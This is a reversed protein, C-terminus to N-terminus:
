TWRAVPERGAADPSRSVPGRNHLALLPFRCRRVIAIRTIDALIGGTKLIVADGCGEVGRVAVGPGSERRVAVTSRAKGLSVGDNRGAAGGQLAGAARLWTFESNRMTGALAAPEPGSTDPRTLSLNASSGTFATLRMVRLLFSIVMFVLNERRPRTSMIM